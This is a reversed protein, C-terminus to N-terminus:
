LGAEPQALRRVQLWIVAKFTGAHTGNCGGPSESLSPAPTWAGMRTLQRQGAAGPLRCQRM